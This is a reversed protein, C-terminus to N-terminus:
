YCAESRIDLDQLEQGQGSALLPGETLELRVKIAYTGNICYRQLIKRVSSASSLLGSQMGTGGLKLIRSIIAPNTSICPSFVGTAGIETPRPALTLGPTYTQTILGPYALLQTQKPLTAASPLLWSCSYLPVRRSFACADRRNATMGAFQQVFPGREDVGCGM